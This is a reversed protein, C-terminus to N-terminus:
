MGARTYCGTHFFHIWVKFSLDLFDLIKRSAKEEDLCKQDVCPHGGRLLNLIELHCGGECTNFIVACIQRQLKSATKLLALVGTCFKVGLDNKHVVLKM